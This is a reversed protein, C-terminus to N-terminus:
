DVTTKPAFEFKTGIHVAGMEQVLLKMAYPIRISRIHNSTKCMRCYPKDHLVTVTDINTPAQPEALHGCQGCAVTDFADSQHLLRDQLLQSAGHSIM